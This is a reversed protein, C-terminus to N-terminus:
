IKKLNMLKKFKFSIYKYINKAYFISDLLKKKFKSNPLEINLYLNTALGTGKSIKQKINYTSEINTVLNKCVIHDDFIIELNNSLNLKKCYNFEKTIIKNKHCGDIHFFDFKKNLSKIANLSDNHIFDINAEPFQSKLYNTAPRSFKENIDITTINLKPNAILMILLSHGMYTGIELINNKGIVKNFLLEQKSYNEQLYQYNYGDFLYSGNGKEFQNSCKEYIKFFHLKITELDKSTLSQPNTM